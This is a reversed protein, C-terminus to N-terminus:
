HEEASQETHVESVNELSEAFVDSEIHAGYPGVCM